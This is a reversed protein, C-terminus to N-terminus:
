KPNIPKMRMPAVMNQPDIESRNPRLVAYPMAMRTVPNPTPPM